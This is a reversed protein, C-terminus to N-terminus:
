SQPEDLLGLSALFEEGSLGGNEMMERYEREMEEAPIEALIQAKLEASLRTQELGKKLADLDPPSQGSPTPPLPDPQSHESNDSM